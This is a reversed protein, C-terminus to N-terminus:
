VTVELATLIAKVDELCICPVNDLTKLGKCILTAYVVAMTDVEKRLLIHLLFLRLSM